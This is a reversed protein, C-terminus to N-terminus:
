HKYPLEAKKFKDWTHILKTNDAHVLSSLYGRIFAATDAVDRDAYQVQKLREIAVAADNLWGLEEQLDSLRSVFAKVREHPYLSQFFETTYRVKKGAIRARHRLDPDNDQLREGRKLLRNEGKKLAQKAFKRLPQNVLSESQKNLPSRWHKGAMWEAFRLELGAHRPTNLAKAANERYHRAYELAVRKLENIEIDQPVVSEIQKLTSNALVEWDRAAGLESALWKFDDQIVKPCEIADSFLDLASRLRRLGVRMQHVSEPDSGHIVGQENGHVQEMCNEIVSEFAEEVTMSPSLRLKSAKVIKKKEPIRLAYGRAAKSLTGIRMPVHELLQLAFAYLRAPVGSKLELEVECIVEKSQEHEITGRDIAMEIEDGTPLRLQRITRTVDSTFIPQLRDSLTASALLGSYTSNWGIAERLAAIDPKNGAVDTEWEENQHLGATVSGGAKLTQIYREDIQRVRLGAGAHRLDFDMTDFYVNKLQQPMHSSVTVAELVSLKELKEIDHEDILLKLEIEM